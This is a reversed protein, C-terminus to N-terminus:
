SAGQRTCATDPWCGASGCLFHKVFITVQCIHWATSLHLYKHIFLHTSARFRARVSLPFVHPPAVFFRSIERLRKDMFRCKETTICSQPMAALARQPSLNVRGFFDKPALSLGMLADTIRQSKSGEIQHYSFNTRQREAM